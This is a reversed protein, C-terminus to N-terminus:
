NSAKMQLYVYLRAKHDRHSEVGYIIDQLGDKNWDVVTLRSRYGGCIESEPVVEDTYGNFVPASDTGQNLFVRTKDNMNLCVLDKKGDGNSDKVTPVIAPGGNLVNDGDKLLVEKEFVPPEQNTTNILLYITGNEQGCLMDKKGDNNWDTVCFRLKGDTVKFERGGAQLNTKQRDKGDLQIFGYNNHRIYMIQGDGDFDERWSAGARYEIPPGKAKLTVSKEFRPAADTGVNEFYNIKAWEDACILDKKGDGNLDAVAVDARMGGNLPKAGIMLTEAKDFKPEKPSGSNLLLCVTGYEQGVLIDFKGDNNWDVVAPKARDEECQFEKGAVKIKELKGLVPAADTGENIGVYLFGGTDGVILDKKGDANYDM